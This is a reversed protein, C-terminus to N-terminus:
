EIRWLLKGKIRERILGIDEELRRVWQNNPFKQYLDARQRITTWSLGKPEPKLVNSIRERFEEYTMKSKTMYNM